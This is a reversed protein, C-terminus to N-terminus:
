MYIIIIIIIITTTTTIIITIITTTTTIIIIRIIIITIIILLLLIMIISFYLFLNGTSGNPFTFVYCCSNFKNLKHNNKAKYYLCIRWDEQPVILM